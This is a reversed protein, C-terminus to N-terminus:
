FPYSPQTLNNKVLFLSITSTSTTTSTNADVPKLCASLSLLALLFSFAFSIHDLSSSPINKTCKMQQLNLAVDSFLDPYYVVEDRIFDSRRADAGHDLLIGVIELKNTLNKNRLTFALASEPCVAENPNVTELAKWVLDVNNSAIAFMLKPDPISASSNSILLKCVLFPFHIKRSTVQFSKKKAVRLWM